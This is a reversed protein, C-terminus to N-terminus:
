AVGGVRGARVPPVDPGLRGDVRLWEVAEAVAALSTFAPEYGLVRRAKEISFSHSRAVHEYASTAEDAGLGAAFEDFPAFRLRAERGFWGAAAEAFGRLTLARESVAYFAEGNARDPQAVCLAVLQAVDAAHVHHVTELGFGPLVVEAGTALARWPAVDVTGQPNIVQWGPGSIHGPHVVAVPLGGPRRSEALLLREIAAKRTGYEGWPRRPEDETAPVETLTGNVWITGIHVLQRVRGRLADALARASDETFCILDVVVDAGLDAIRPGFTGAADEAERDAVVREVRRWAEDDVYPRSAGRTVAVVDHGERVLRPVLYGGVHGTAGIVVIRM